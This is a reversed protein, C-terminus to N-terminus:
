SLTLPPLKNVAEEQMSQVVRLYRETHKLSTHGMLRSVTYIDVGHLLLNTAFSHRACHFTVHQTLKARKAWAKLTKNIGNQSPLTFVPQDPQGTEGLLQLASPNLQISVPIQTKNQKMKLVGNRISNWHLTKIDSARLGTNCALLFARKVEKSNCPTSALTQIESTSLIDKLFGEVKRNIIHATPDKSLIGERVAQKVMRKFHTFYDYPTEGNLHKDLYERFNICAQETLEHNVFSPKEIFKKFHALSSATSRLNKKNYETVYNEFFPILDIRKKFAVPVDYDYANLELEKKSCISKAQQLVQKNHIREQESNTKKYM